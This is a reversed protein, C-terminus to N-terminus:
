LFASASAAWNGGVEELGAGYSEEEVRTGEEVREGKADDFVRLFVEKEKPRCWLLILPDDEVLLVMMPIELMAPLVEGNLVKLFCASFVKLSIRWGSRRRIEWFAGDDEVAM